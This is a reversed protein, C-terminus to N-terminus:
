TLTYGLQSMVCELSRSIQPLIRYIIRPQCNPSNHFNNFPITNAWYKASVSHQYESSIIFDRISIPFTICYVHRTEIAFCFVFKLELRNAKDNSASAAWEAALSIIIILGQECDRRRRREYTM